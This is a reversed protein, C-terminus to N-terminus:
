SELQDPSSSNDEGSFFALEFSGQDYPKLYEHYVNNTDYMGM